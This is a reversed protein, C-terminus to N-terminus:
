SGIHEICRWSCDVDPWVYLKRPGAPHAPPSTLSVLGVVPLYRSMHRDFCGSTSINGPSAIEGPSRSIQADGTLSPFSVIKRWHGPRLNLAQRRAVLFLAGSLRSAHPSPRLVPPPRGPIEGPLHARTGCFLEGRLTLFSLHLFVATIVSLSCM